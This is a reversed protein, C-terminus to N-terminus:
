FIPQAPPPYAFTNVEFFEERIILSENDRSYRLGMRHEANRSKNKLGSKKPLPRFIRDPKCSRRKYQRTRGQHGGKVPFLVRCCDPLTGSRKSKSRKADQHLKNQKPCKM